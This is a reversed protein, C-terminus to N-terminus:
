GHSRRLERLLWWAMGALLLTFVQIRLFAAFNQTMWPILYLAVMWTEFHGDHFRHRHPILLAVVGTMLLTDYIPVYLNILLTAPLIAAWMLDPDRRGYKRCASAILALCLLAAGVGLVSAAVPWERLLLHWFANWDVYKERHMAESATTAIERYLALTRLWARLGDM